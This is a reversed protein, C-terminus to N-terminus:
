FIRAPMGHWRILNLWGAASRKVDAETLQKGAFGQEVPPPPPIPLNSTDISWFQDIPVNGRPLPWDTQIFPQGSVFQLLLEPNAAWFQDLPAFTRPLPWDTQNFPNQVFFTSNLLNQIWTQDIPQRVVPLPANVNQFFPTPKPLLQLNNQWFQDIPNFIRPLPWDRQNFPAQFAPALTNELLNQFWDEYWITRQPNPWDKQIFPNQTVATLANGSVTWSQYWTLNPINNQSLDLGFPQGQPTLPIPLSSNGTEQWLNVNYYVPPFAYTDIPRFPTPRPLTTWERWDQYWNVPYPNPWDRQVRLTQTLLTPVPLTTLGSETWKQWESYVFGRPPLDYIKGVVPNATVAAAKFAMVAVICTDTTPNSTFTAAITGASSQIQSEDAMPRVFGSGQGSNRITFGSGVTLATNSIASIASGYILDGGVTTTINGSSVTAGSTQQAIHGDLPTTTAVGSWEQVEIRTVIASASFTAIISTPAGSINPLYFTAMSVGDGADDTNDVINYTVGNNDKVSTLTQPDNWVVSGCILNGTTGATINVTVTTGSGNDASIAKQVFTIAM